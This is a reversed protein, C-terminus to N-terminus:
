AIPHNWRRDTEVDSLCKFLYVPIAHFFEGTGCATLPVKHFNLGRDVVLLKTARTQKCCVLFGIWM